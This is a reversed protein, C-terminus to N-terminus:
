PASLLPLLERGSSQKTDYRFYLSELQSKLEKQKELLKKEDTSAIERKPLSSLQEEVTKLQGQTERYRNGLEFHSIFTENLKGPCVDYYPEGRKGALFANFPQCYSALGEQYGKLYEAKKIPVDNQECASVLKQLPRETKGQHGNRYGLSEWEIQQCEKRSLSHCSVICLTM